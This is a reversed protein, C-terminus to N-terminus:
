YLSSGPASTRKEYEAWQEDTADGCRTEVPFRCRRCQFVLHEPKNITPDKRSFEMDLPQYTPDSFLPVAGVYITEPMRTAGCKPCQDPLDVRM